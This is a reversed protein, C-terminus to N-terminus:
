ALSTRITDVILDTLPAFDQKADNRLATGLAWRTDPTPPLAVLPLDVRAMAYTFLVWATRGNGDNFPHIRIVRVYLKAAALVSDQLQAGGPQAHKALRQLDTEFNDLADTLRRGVQKPRVGRASSAIPRTWTGLVIPYVVGEDNRRFPDPLPGFAPEFIARHIGAVDTVVLRTDRRGAAAALVGVRALDGTVQAWTQQPTKGPARHYDSGPRDAFAAFTRHAAAVVTAVAHREEDSLDDLSDPFQPTAPM